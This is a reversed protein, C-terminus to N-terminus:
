FRVVCVERAIQDLRGSGGDMALDALRTAYSAVLCASIAGYTQGSAGNRWRAVACDHAMALLRVAEARQDGSMAATHVAWLLAADCEAVNAVAESRRGRIWGAQGATAGGATLGDLKAVYDLHSRRARELSSVHVALTHSHGLWCNACEASYDGGYPYRSSCSATRSSDDAGTAQFRDTGSPTPVERWWSRDGYGNVRCVTEVTSM